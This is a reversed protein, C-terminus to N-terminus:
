TRSPLQSACMNQMCVYAASCNADLEILQQFAWRGLEVNMWKHCASLTALFLPLHPPSCASVKALLMIVNGFHGARGFLDIMCTYHELTPELDYVAAMDEFLQAGEKVLGAHSCAMLLVRFTVPDPMIGESRMEGFMDLVLEARGLHGYGGMLACWSVVDRAPLLEFVERAKELAGCKAYMDVLSAGLVADKQLLGSERLEM